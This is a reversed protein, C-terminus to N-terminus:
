IPCSGKQCWLHGKTDPVCSLDSTQCMQDATTCKLLIICFFFKSNPPLVSRWFCFYTYWRTTNMWHFPFLVCYLRQQYPPTIMPRQSRMEHMPGTHRSASIPCGQPPSTLQPGPTSSLSHCASCLKWAPIGQLHAARSGRGRLLQARDAGGAWHSRWYGPTPIYKIASTVFFFQGAKNNQSRRSNKTCPYGGLGTVGRAPDKMIVQLKHYFHPSVDQWVSLSITWM